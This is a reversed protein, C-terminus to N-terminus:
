FEQRVLQVSMYTLPSYAADYALYADAGSDQYTYLDIVQGANLYILKSVNASINGTGSAQSIGTAISVGNTVDWVLAMYRKGAVGAIYGVNANVQYYGAVPAVFHNTAYINGLNVMQLELAVYSNSNNSVKQTANVPYANALGM